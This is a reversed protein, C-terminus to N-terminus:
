LDITELSRLTSLAAFFSTGTPLLRMEMCSQKLSAPFEAEGFVFYM